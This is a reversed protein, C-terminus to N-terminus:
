VNKTLTHGDAFTVQESCGDLSISASPSVFSVFQGTITAPYSTGACSYSVSRVTPAKVSIIAFPEGSREGLPDFGIGILPEDGSPGTHSCTSSVAFTLCFGGNPLRTEYVGLGAQWGHAAAPFTFAEQTTAIVASTLGNANRFHANATELATLAAATSRVYNATPQSANANLAVEARAPQPGAFGLGGALRQGAVVGAGIVCVFLVIALPKKTRTKM